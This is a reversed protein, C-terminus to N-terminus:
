KVLYDPVSDNDADFPLPDDADPKGDADADDASARPPQVPPLDKVLAWWQEIFQGRTLEGTPAAPLPGKRAKATRAIIQSKGAEDAVDAPRLKVDKRTMPLLGGAAMMHAPVYVPSETQLDQFPWLASPTAGGATTCVGLRVAELLAPDMPAQRPQVDRELCVAATAGAAQGIAVCQDHLRFASSVISSYGLNKQAGILGDIKEPVLSRLPFVSRCSVTTWGRGKKFYSEWAKGDPEGKLFGRGTPHYDYVFQWAAIADPYMVPAYDDQDRTNALGDQERMMYMAKLRLSERIYPKPPLRDPTGFEASLQFRRFSHDRVDEPMRDHVTTQLHHLMGLSHKKIDDFVIQRQERTMQVINLKSAGPTHAELADVVHRPLIDLPYDQITWNLLIVDRQNPDKLTLTKSDVLRRHTYVSQGGTYYSGTHARYAPHFPRHPRHTWALKKYDDKTEITTLYFSRPDFNDPRPVVHEGDTEEIVLCWTLPNMDTIPYGDHSAPASPENYKHKLDPGFEYGAGALQIVDGFDSADITIPAAVTIPPLDPAAATFRVAQLTRGDASMQAQAPYYNSILKVQGAKMYPELMARFVSEAEAPRITTHATWANGPQKHGYKHLNLAEFRGVLEKFLGSRPIPTKNQRGRNEDIACVAEATYQGGLWEIDNVIVIRRVGLRAAQMAAAWGSETGGVILLDAEIAQPEAAHLTLPALAALAALLITGTISRMNLM